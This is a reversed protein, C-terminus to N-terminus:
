RICRGDLGTSSYVWFVSSFLREGIMANKGQRGVVGERRQIEYVHITDAYQAVSSLCAYGFGECLLV